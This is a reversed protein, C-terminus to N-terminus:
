RAGSMRITIVWGDVRINRIVFDAEQNGPLIARATCSENSWSRTGGVLVTVEVHLPNACCRAFRGTFGDDLVAGERAIM